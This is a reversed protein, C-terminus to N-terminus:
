QIKVPELVSIGPLNRYHEDFDMGYGVVFHQPEVVFGWWDAKVNVRRRGPKDLLAAIRVSTAGHALLEEILAAATGGTDVIDEVILVHKDKVPTANNSPSLRVEGTSEQGEYSSVEIFDVECPISLYKLLEAGFMFAGKLVILVVLDDEEKYAESIEKGLAKIREEIEKRGILPQV